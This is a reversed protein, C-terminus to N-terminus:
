SFLPRLPPLARLRDLFATEGDTWARERGSLLDALAADHGPAFSPLGLVNPEFPAGGIQLRMSVTSLERLWEAVQTGPDKDAAHSAVLALADKRNQANLLVALLFRLHPEKVLARRNILLDSRRRHETWTRLRAAADADRIRNLVGEILAGDQSTALAQVVWFATNHDSDAVLDGAVRELDPDDTKRMMEIVQVIRERAPDEVFPDVAIGSPYYDFQSWTAPDRFTRVVLSLSPRLLHFLSHIYDPGAPVAQVDGARRLASGAVRLEGFKLHGDVDRNPIFSFNTEISSGALVQFAGSFGHDHITTTGDVWFLVDIYFRRSRFLTVPPQGFRAKPDAQQPLDARM